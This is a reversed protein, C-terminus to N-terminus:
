YDGTFESPLKMKMCGFEIVAGQKIRKLATSFSDDM